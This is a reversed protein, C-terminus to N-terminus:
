THWCAPHTHQWDFAGEIQGALSMLREDQLAPAMLQVGIPVGDATAHVPLSVAPTGAINAAPTFASWASMAELSGSGDDARLEATTPPPASTTPTLVVDYDGLFARFRMAAGALVALATAHETATATNQEVLWRTYPMLLHRQEQPVALEVIQGISAALVVLVAARVDETPPISASPVEVVEHGLDELVRVARDVGALCDAHVDIDRGPNLLLGVRMRGPPTAAARRFADSPQAPATWLDAATAGGVADLLLASDAVTRALGGEVALALWGAGSGASRGRSTKFGILGCAAAPTRISGLGDSGHAVGVLGAAVAAAAGGSSGSPCLRLDYPNVTTGGVDSDTYCTPGFEPTNTKGIVVAGAARLRGVAAGDAPTVLDRFAASGFTTPMGAAPHMDKLALPLGHLLGLQEGAVVAADAAQAGLLADDALVAIFARLSGDHREIRDLYHTVLEVSSVQRAAIAAVQEVATLDHLESM